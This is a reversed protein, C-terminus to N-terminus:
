YAVSNRPASADLFLVEHRKLTWAIQIGALCACEEASGFVPHQRIYCRVNLRGLIKVEDVLVFRRGACPCQEIKTHGRGSLYVFVEIWFANRDRCLPEGAGTLGFLESQIDNTFVDFRASRGGLDGLSDLELSHEVADPAFAVDVVDDDVLQCAECAVPEVVGDDHGVQLFAAHCQDAGGFRDVVARDALQHVSDQGREVFVAGALVARIHGELHARLGLLAAGEAM